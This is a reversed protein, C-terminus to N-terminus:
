LGARTGIWLAGLALALTAWVWGTGLFGPLIMLVLGVVLQPVRLQKRGYTFVGFGVSSAIMTAFLWPLTLQMEAEDARPPRRGYGPGGPSRGPGGPRQRRRGPAAGILGM